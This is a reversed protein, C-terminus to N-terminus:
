SKFIVENRMKDKPVIENFHHEEKLGKSKMLCFVNDSMYERNLLFWDYLKKKWEQM